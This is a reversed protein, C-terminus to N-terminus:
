PWPHESNMLFKCAFRTNGIWHSDVKELVLIGGGNFHTGYRLVYKLLAFRHTKDFVLESFEAVGLYTDQMSVNKASDPHSSVYLDRQKLITSEEDTGVLRISKGRLVGPDISHYANKAEEPNQLQLNRLCPANKELISSDFPYTRNSILNFNKNSSMIDIFDAYVQQQESTLPTKSPQDSPAAYLVFSALAVAILVTARPLNMKRAHNALREEDRDRAKRDPPIQKGIARRL